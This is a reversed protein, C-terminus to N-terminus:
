GTLFRMVSELPGRRFFRLWATAVLVSFVWVAAIWAAAETLEMSGLKGQVLEDGVIFFSIFVHSIYLTLAMRGACALPHLIKKARVSRCILFCLAVVSFAVGGASLVYLPAPPLSEAKALQQLATVFEDLRGHGPEKVLAGALFWALLYSCVAVLASTVLVRRSMRRNVLDQRGLWMGAFLFGLWPLLPHFGNFVLNKVLQSPGWFNRYELTELNWDDWFGGVLYLLTFGAVSAGTFVWLWRGPLSVFAAAFLFYFGYFHLIDAPWIEVWGYGLVVLFLARKCLIFRFGSLGTEKEKARSAMLSIGAGAVVVFLAAARGTFVGTLSNLWDPGAPNLGSLLIRYNVVVMGLFALGRAIDYAELRGSSVTVGERSGTM